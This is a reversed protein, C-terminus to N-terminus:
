ERLLRRKQSQFEDDSIVGQAKLDALKQLEDAVSGAFRSQSRASANERVREEILRKAQEAEAKALAHVILNDTGGKNVIELDARFVGRVLNVQAIGDFPLSMKTRKLGKIIEAEVGATTIVLEQKWSNSLLISGHIRLLVDTSMAM